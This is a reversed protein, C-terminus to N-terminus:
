QRGGGRQMQKSSNLEQWKLESPVLIDLIPEVIICHTQPVHLFQTQFGISFQFLVFPHDRHGLLEGSQHIGM